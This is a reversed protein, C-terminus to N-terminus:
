VGGGFCMCGGDGRKFKMCALVEGRYFAQFSFIGERHEPDKGPCDEGRNKIM